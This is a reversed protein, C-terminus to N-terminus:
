DRAPHRRPHRARRVAHRHNRGASSGAAANRDHEHRARRDARSLAHASHAHRQAHACGGAQAAAQVEGQADRRLTAGRRHGGPGPGQVRHRKQVLRHTGIVIDVAGAALEKVVRKQERARASARSCNSACRSLGGHARPVYQLTAAGARDDAGARRGAQRGHGSQVRRSHRSRNQRLGCRRLDPPGDAQATGHRSQDRRHRADPRANGRLSVRKRVRAALTHGVRFAHGAQSERAAQISLLESALDRVAREAQEKAKAWRTGGLTNLPPRAKGAGVYKSVLHAETVPVYLKPAPQDPDSPAYEIVLCEQRARRARRSARLRSEHRRAVAADAFRPLARHRTASARRLRGGGLDTFDIDLM